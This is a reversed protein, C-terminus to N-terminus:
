DEEKLIPKHVGKVWPVDVKDKGRGYRYMGRYTQENELIAKVSSAYFHGGSRTKHGNDNLWEAIRLIPMKGKMSFIIRVVAAEDDNIALQGNRIEYGYPARGGSYGGAAAKIKRGNGTRLAINKREQEAVFQLLARYINALDENGDFDETVSVLKINRKELTYLYHFYLKMNRSVRDYKYVIVAEFPPNTIEEGYLIENWHPRDDSAGSEEDSFWEVINYGNKNAYALIEKKQAEIGFKDDAAQGATSVRVYGIANKFKKIEM